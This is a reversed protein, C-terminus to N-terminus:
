SAEDVLIKRAASSGLTLKKGKRVSIEVADSSKDRSVVTVKQGPMLGNKEAFLLFDPDQDLIRVITRPVKRPCEALSVTGVLAFAGDPSPIPDGHPDVRPHGLMADIRDIVRDSVAHELAEAEGHVESWDLGLVQVLLLEILRHRRVVQLAIETGADTLSVGVRARYNVLRDSSLTKVMATATGPVVNMARALAGMPLMGDRRQAELYICKLYDEVTSSPM